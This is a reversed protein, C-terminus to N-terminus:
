HSFFVVHQPMGQHTDVFDDLPIIELPLEDGPLSYFPNRHYEEPIRSVLVQWQTKTLAGRSKDVWDETPLTPM